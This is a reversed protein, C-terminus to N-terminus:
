LSANGNVDVDEIAGTYRFAYTVDELLRAARDEDSVDSVDPAQVIISTPDVPALDGSSDELLQSSICGAVKRIGVNDYSVKDNTLQLRLIKAQAGSTFFDLYIRFDAYKGSAMQSGTFFNTGSTNDYWGVFKAKMNTRETTNFSRAPVNNLQAFTWTARGPSKALRASMMGIDLFDSVGDSYVVKARDNAANKLFEAIDDTGSLTTDPVVTDITQAWYLKLNASAYAAAAQIYLDSNYMTLLGYWNSNEVSIAALATQLGNDAHNQVVPLNARDLTRVDHWDGAAAAVIRFVTNTSQESTTVGTSLADLAAKLGGTIAAATASGGSTYQVLQGDFMFQYLYSNKVVPAFDFQQTPSHDNARGILLQKPRPSQAFFVAAGKYEPTTIAFDGAVDAAKGYTRTRETWTASHSVLLALKFSQQSVTPTDATVSVSAYDNPDGAM